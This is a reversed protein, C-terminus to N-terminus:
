FPVGRSELEITEGAMEATRYSGFIEITAEEPTSDM